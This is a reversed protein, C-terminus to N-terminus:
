FDRENVMEGILRRLQTGGSKMTYLKITVCECILELVRINKVKLFWIDGKGRVKRCLITQKNIGSLDGEQM